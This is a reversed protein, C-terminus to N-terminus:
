FVVMYFQSKFAAYSSPQAGFMQAFTRSFHAPDSFGAEYAAEKSSKGEIFARTGAALRQWLVYQRLPVGMQEKFLHLFRHESLYVASALSAASVSENIGERIRILATAIREDLPPETPLNGLLTNYIFNVRSQFQEYRELKQHRLEQLEDLLPAIEDKTFYRVAGENLLQEQVTKGKRVDPMVCATLQWGKFDKLSHPVNSNILVAATEKWGDNETWVSFPDGDLSCTFQIVTHQHVEAVLHASVLMMHVPCLYMAARFTDM